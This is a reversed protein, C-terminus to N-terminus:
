ESDLPEETILVTDNRVSKKFYQPLLLKAWIPVYYFISLLLSRFLEKLLLLM